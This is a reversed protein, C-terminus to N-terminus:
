TRAWRRGSRGCGGTACGGLAPRWAKAPAGQRVPCTRQCLNRCFAADGASEPRIAHDMHAAFLELDLASRAEALMAALAVSDAGGSLAILVRRGRLGSLDAAAHRRM